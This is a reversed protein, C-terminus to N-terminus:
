RVQDYVKYLRQVGNELIYYHRIYPILLVILLVSLLIMPLSCVFTCTIISAFTFIAFALTVLLHILREHQFFSIQILLDELFKRNEDATHDSSLYDTTFSIYDKLRKEM